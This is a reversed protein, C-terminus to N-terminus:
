AERESESEKEMVERYLALTKRATEEKSFRQVTKLGEETCHKRFAEDHIMREVASALEAESGVKCLLGNKEHEIIEVIGGAATAVVPTGSAIADLISTGLGETSSTILFVDLERLLEPVNNRFGTLHIHAEMGTAEIEEEIEKRSPGEGIAIFRVKAGSEIMRKATRIFSPYDKHPALAAVNGVLAHDEPINFEERLSVGVEVNEFRSLDVGSHVVTLKSDDEVSMAMIDRIAHSVCVIKKINPHNYKFLSMSTGQIAFDVRRSVVIPIDNNTLVSSLVAFNHAHSDHVHVLDINSRKCVHTVRFAVMPNASFGKYYTVHPFHHKLCYKHVPSNFPCMIVQEIGLVKLEEALYILQQEGGRWTKPSTIHLVKM